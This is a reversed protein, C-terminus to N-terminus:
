WWRPRDARHRAAAMAADDETGRRGLLGGHIKPHLTKLRGDMMEPFGTYQSVECLRSATTRSCARRAAPRSSRSASKACAARSIWWTRDKDSVSILARRVAVIDAPHNM